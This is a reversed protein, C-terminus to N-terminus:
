RWFYDGGYLYAAGDGFTGWPCVSDERSSDLRNNAVRKAKAIDENTWRGQDKLVYCRNEYCARTRWSDEGLREKYFQYVQEYKEEAEAYQKSQHLCRALEHETLTKMCNQKDLKEEFVGIIKRLLKEAEVYNGRLRLLTAKLVDAGCVRLDDSGLAIQFETKAESLMKEAVNLNHSGLQMMIVVALIQCVLARHYHFIADDSISVSRQEVFRQLMEQSETYRGQFAFLEALDIRVLLNRYDRASGEVDWLRSKAKRFDGRNALMKGARHERLVVYDLWSPMYQYDHVLSPFQYRMARCGVKALLLASSLYADKDDFHSMHADRVKQVAKLFDTALKDKGDMLVIIAARYLVEARTLSTAADLHYMDFRVKLLLEIHPLLERAEPLLEPDCYDFTYETEAPVESLKSPFWLDLSEVLKRHWSERESMEETVVLQVLRHMKHADQGEVKSILCYDLLTNIDDKFIAESNDYLKYDPSGLAFKRPIATREFVSMFCLLDASSKREKRLNQVCSRVAAKSLQMNDHIRAKM